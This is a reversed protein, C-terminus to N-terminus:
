FFFANAGRRRGRSGGDGVQGVNSMRGDDSEVGHLVMSVNDSAEKMKKSEDNAKAEWEDAQAAFMDWQEQSYGTEESLEDVSPEGQGEGERDRFSPQSAAQGAGESAGPAERRGAAQEPGGAHRARKTAPEADVDAQAKTKGQAELADAQAAFSDWEHQSYGTEQSLDDVDSGAEAAGVYDAEAEAAQAAAQATVAAREVEEEEEGDDEEEEAAAALDRQLQRAEEDYRQQAIPNPVQSSASLQSFGKLDQSFGLPDSNYSGLSQSRCFLSDSQQSAPTADPQASATSATDDETADGDSHEEGSETRGHDSM